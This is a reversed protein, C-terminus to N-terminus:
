QRGSGPSIPSKEPTVRIEERLVLKKQWVLVEEIVPYVMTDGEQRPGIFEDIERDAPVHQVVYGHRFLDGPFPQPANAIPIAAPEAAPAPPLPDPMRPEPPAAPPEPERLYFSGDAQPELASAPVLMESGDDLRVQREKNDDLFRAPAMVVGRIGRGRLPYQKMEPVRPQTCSGHWGLGNTMRVFWPPKCTPVELTGSFDVRAVKTVGTLARVSSTANFM